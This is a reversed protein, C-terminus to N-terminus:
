RERRLSPADLSRCTAPLALHTAILHSAAVDSMDAVWSALARSTKLQPINSPDTAATAPLKLTDLYVLVIRLRADVSLSYRHM